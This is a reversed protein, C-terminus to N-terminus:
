GNVVFAQAAELIEQAKSPNEGLIAFPARNALHPNMGIFWARATEESEALTLFRSIQFVARLKREAEDRPEREGRAWRGVAKPDAVGTMSAVIRQGFLRQLETAMEQPSSRVTELHAQELLHMLWADLSTAKASRLSQAQLAVNKRMGITAMTMALGAIKRM